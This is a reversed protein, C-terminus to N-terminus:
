HQADIVIAALNPYRNAKYYEHASQLGGYQIVDDTTVTTGRFTGDKKPVMLGYRGTSLFARVRIRIKTTNMTYRWNTMASNGQSTVMMVDCSLLDVCRICSYVVIYM